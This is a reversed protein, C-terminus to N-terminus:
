SSLGFHIPFYPKQLCLVDKKDVGFINAWFNGTTRDLDKTSTLVDRIKDASYTKLLWRIDTTTGRDLVRKIIFHVDKEVDITEFAVDWFYSQLSKPLSQKSM